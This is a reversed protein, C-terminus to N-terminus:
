SQKNLAQLAKEVEVRRFLKKSTKGPGGYNYCLHEVKGFIHRSVGYHVHIDDYSLRAPIKTAVKSQLLKDLKAEIRDLQTM